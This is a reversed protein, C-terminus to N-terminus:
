KRFLLKHLGYGATSGLGAYLGLGRLNEFRSGLGEKKYTDYTKLGVGTVAGALPLKYEKLIMVATKTFREKDM